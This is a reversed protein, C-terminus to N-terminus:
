ITIKGKLIKRLIRYFDSYKGEVTIKLDKQKIIIKFTEQNVKQM